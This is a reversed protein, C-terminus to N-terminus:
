KGKSGEKAKALKEGLAPVWQLLEQLKMGKLPGVVGENNSRSDGARAVCRVVDFAEVMFM